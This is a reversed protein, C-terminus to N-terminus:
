SPGQRRAAHVSSLRISPSSAAPVCWPNSTMRDVFEWGEGYADVSSVMYHTYVTYKIQYHM